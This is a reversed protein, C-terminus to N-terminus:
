KPLNEQLFKDRFMIHGALGTANGNVNDRHVFLTHLFCAGGKKIAVQVYVGKTTRSQVATKTTDTWEVASEVEWRSSTIHVRVIQPSGGDKTVISRALAKIATADGGKYVDPKMKRNKLVIKEIDAEMKQVAAYDDNLTKLKPDDAPLITRVNKIHEELVALESSPLYNPKAKGKEGELFTKATAIRKSAEECVNGISQEYVKISTKIAWEADRLKWHSDKDIGTALFEAYLAKAEKYIPAMRVIEKADMSPCGFNGKSGPTSDSKYVELKAAWDEAVRDKDQEGKKEADKAEQKDKELAEVTAVGKEIREVAARVEPANLHEPYRDKIEKYTEQAWELSNRDAKGRQAASEVKAMYDDIKKLRSTVTSPLGDGNASATAPIFLLSCLAFLCIFLASARNSFSVM